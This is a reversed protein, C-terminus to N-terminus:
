SSKKIKDGLEKYVNPYTLILLKMIAQIMNYLAAINDKNLNLYIDLTIRIFVTFECLSIYVIYCIEVVQQCTINCIIGLVLRSFKIKLCLFIFMVFKPLAIKFCHKTFLALYILRVLQSIFTVSKM